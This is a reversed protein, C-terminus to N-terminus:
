KVAQFRTLVAKIIAYEFLYSFKIWLSIRLRTVGDETCYNRIKVSSDDIIQESGRCNYKWELSLQTGSFFYTAPPSTAYML